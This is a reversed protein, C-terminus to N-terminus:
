GRLDSVVKDTLDQIVPLEDSFTFGDVVTSGSAWACEGQVGTPVSV